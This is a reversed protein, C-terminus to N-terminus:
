GKGLRNMMEEKIAIPDIQAGLITHCNPCSLTIAKWETGGFGARAPASTITMRSVTKECKPCKGQM